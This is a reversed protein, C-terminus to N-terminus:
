ICKTLEVSDYLIPLSDPKNLNKPTSQSKLIKLNKRRFTEHFQIWGILLAIAGFTIHAYFLTTYVLSAQLAISKSALLDFKQDSFLTVSTMLVMMSSLVAVIGWGIKRWYSQTRVVIETKM